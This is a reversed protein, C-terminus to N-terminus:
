IYYGIFQDNNNKPYIFYVYNRSSDTKIKLVGKTIQFANSTLNLISQLQHRSDPFLHYIRSREQCIGYSNKQKFLISVIVSNDKSQSIDYTFETIPIGIKDIKLKM